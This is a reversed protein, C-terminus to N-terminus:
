AHREKVVELEIMSYISEISRKIEPFLQDNADLVLRQLYMNMLRGGPKLIHEKPVYEQLLIIDKKGEYGEFSIAPKIYKLEQNKTIQYLGSKPLKTIRSPQNNQGHFLLLSGCGGLKAAPLDETQYKIKGLELVHLLYFPIDVGERYLMTLLPTAGTLRPNVELLYVQNNKVLCDIGYIGRYGTSKLLDGVQRAQKSIEQYSKDFSGIEIGCFKDGDAVHTNSLLSDGILQRQLPGVYIGKETVCAQVSREYAAEILESIIVSTHGTMRKLESLAIQYQKFTRVLHTGKGGSLQEDQIVIAKGNSSVLDYCKKTSTLDKYKFIKYPAFPLDPFNSRFWAKNEFTKSVSKANSLVQFDRLPEPLDVPKYTLLRHGMAFNHLLEQFSKEQLLHQSNLAKLQPLDSVYDSLSYVKPLNTNFQWGSYTFIKYNDFWKELGLRPWPVLGIGAIKTARDYTVKM